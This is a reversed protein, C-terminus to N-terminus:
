TVQVCDECYRDNGQWSQKLAALTNAFCNGRNKKLHIKPFVVSNQPVKCEFQTRSVLVDDCRKKVNELNEIFIDQHVDLLIQVIAESDLRVSM